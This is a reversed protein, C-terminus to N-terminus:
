RYQGSDDSPVQRMHVTDEIIGHFIEKRDRATDRLLIQSSQFRKKQSRIRLGCRMSEACTKFGAQLAYRDSVILAHPMSRATEVTRGHIDATAAHPVRTYSAFRKAKTYRKPWIKRMRQVLAICHAEKKGDMM